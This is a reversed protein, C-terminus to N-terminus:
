YQSAFTRPLLFVYTALSLKITALIVIAAEDKFVCGASLGMSFSFLPM